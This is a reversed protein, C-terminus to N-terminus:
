YQRVCRGERAEVRAGKCGEKQEYMCDWIVKITNLLENAMADKLM